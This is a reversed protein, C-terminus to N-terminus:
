FEEREEIQANIEIIDATNGVAQPLDEYFTEDDFKSTTGSVSLAGYVSGDSHQVPAGVARLGQLKEEDNFAVGRERVSELENRLEDLDTITNDTLAPLDHRDVIQDVKEDHLYALISKGGAACHLYSRRGVQTAPIVAHDSRAICVCVTHGHEEVMFQVRAETEEALKEIEEHIIEYHPIQNKVYEGMELFKLSLRYRQDEKTVFQRNQFSALYGHVAGKSLDMEDALETIGAGDMEQLRELIECAKEVSKVTRSDSEDGIPM